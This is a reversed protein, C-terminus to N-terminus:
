RDHPDPPNCDPCTGSMGCQSCWDRHEQADGTGNCGDCPIVEKDGDLVKGYGGCERCENWDLKRSDHEYPERIYQVASTM